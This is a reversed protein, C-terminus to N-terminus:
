TGNNPWVLCYLQFFQLFTLFTLNDAYQADSEPNMYWQEAVSSLIITLITLITLNDGYKADSEPNM